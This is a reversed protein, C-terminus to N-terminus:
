KYYNTYIWTLSKKLRELAADIIIFLCSEDRRKMLLSWYFPYDILIMSFYRIWRLEEWHSETATETKYENVHFSMLPEEFNSM